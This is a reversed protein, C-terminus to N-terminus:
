MGLQFRVFKKIKLGSLIDKIKKDPNKVFVQDVLCKEEYFKELKGLVIKDVINDPKGKIQSKIIEKELELEKPSVEERTICIPSTAAIQMSVDKLIEDKNEADGEAEVLVGIKGGLHIYSGIVGNQTEFKEVRKLQINEGIKGIAETVIQQIETKFAEDVISGNSYVSNKASILKELLGDVLNKFNENRAVFDTECNVEAILGTKGDNIILASVLGEKAERGAKKAATSIGQKRLYEVAKEIDGGSEQLAKKCDMMGANTKDRLEKVISADM